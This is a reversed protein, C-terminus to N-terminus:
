VFAYVLFAGFCGALVGGVRGYPEVFSLAWLMLRKFNRRGMAALVIAAALSLWGIIEIVLPFSSKSSQSVLLFGLVARVVIAAIHLGPKEYNAELYGFVPQPNIIIVIGALLILIASLIVLLTM